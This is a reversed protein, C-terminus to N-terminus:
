DWRLMVTRGNSLQHEIMGPVDAGPCLDRIDVCLSTIDAPLRDFKVVLSNYNAELVKLGYLRDWKRLRAVVSEFGKGHAVTELCQAELYAYQNLDKVLFARSVPVQLYCREPVTIEFGEKVKAIRAGPPLCDSEFGRFVFREAVAEDDGIRVLSQIYSDAALLIKQSASLSGEGYKLISARGVDGELALIKGEPDLVLKSAVAHWQKYSGERMAGATVFKQCEQATTFCHLQEFGGAGYVEYGLAQLQPKVASLRDAWNNKPLTFYLVERTRGKEKQALSLANLFADVPKAGYKKRWAAVDIKKVFAGSVDEGEHAMSRPLLALYDAYNLENVVFGDCKGFDKRARAQLGALIPNGTWSRFHEELHHCQTAFMLSLGASSRALSRITEYDRRSYNLASQDYTHWIERYDPFLGVTLSPCNKISGVIERAKQFDSQKEDPLKLLPLPDGAVQQSHRYLAAQEADESDIRALFQAHKTQREAASPLAEKRCGSQFVLCAFALAAMLATQSKNLNGKNAVM